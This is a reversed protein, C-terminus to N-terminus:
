RIWAGYSANWTRSYCLDRSLIDRCMLLESGLSDLLLCKRFALKLNGPDCPFVTYVKVGVTVVLESYHACLVEYCLSLFSLEGAVSAAFSKEM